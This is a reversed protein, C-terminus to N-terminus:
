VTLASLEDRRARFEEQAERERRAVVGVEMRLRELRDTIGTDEAQQATRATEIDLSTRSLFDAAESVKQRLTKSRAM